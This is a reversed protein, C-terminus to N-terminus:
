SVRQAAFPLMYTHGDGAFSALHEFEALMREDSYRPVDASLQQAATVMAPPLPHTRYVYHQRRMQGLYYAIDSRWGAVRASDTTTQAAAIFVIAALAALVSAAIKLSQRVPHLSRALM